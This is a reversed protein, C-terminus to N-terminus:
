DRSALGFALSNREPFGMEGLISVRVDIVKNHYAAGAMHGNMDM